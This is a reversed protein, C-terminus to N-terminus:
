EIFIKFQILIAFIELKNLVLIYVRTWASTGHVFIMLMAKENPHPRNPLSNLLVCLRMTTGINQPSASPACHLMWEFVVKHGVVEHGVTCALLYPRGVSQEDTQKIWDCAPGSWPLPVVPAIVRPEGSWPYGMIVIRQKLYFERKFFQWESAICSYLDINRHQM